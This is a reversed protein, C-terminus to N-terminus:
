QCEMYIFGWTGLNTSRNELNEVLRNGKISEVHSAHLHFLNKNFVLFVQAVFILSVDAALLNIKLNSVNGCNLWARLVQGLLFGFFFKSLLHFCIKKWLTEHYTFCRAFTRIEILFVILDDNFVVVMTIYFPRSVSAKAPENWPELNQDVNGSNKKPLRVLQTMGSSVVAFLAGKWQIKSTGAWHM